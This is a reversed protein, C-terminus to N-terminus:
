LHRGRFAAVGLSSADVARVTRRWSRRLETLIPAPLSERDIAPGVLHVLFPGPQVWTPAFRVRGVSWGQTGLEFTVILVMGDQVDEISDTATMGTLSNGVGYAVWRDHVKRIPQVVHAHHGVILDVAGSGTLRRALRQQEPDPVHRFETGWHLSVVVLDAGADRAADARRIITKVRIRNAMWRHVPKIGNFGFAFALHAIVVGGVRYRVIRRSEAETRATGTHRLGAHDLADLTTRIGRAGHDLSHNSATSCGDYGAARIATALQHPAAYRPAGSISVGPGSLPTELHCIGLDASSVLPALRAFMPRYDFGGGDGAKRRAAPWTTPSGIIDGTFVVTIREAEGVTDHTAAAPLMPAWGIAGLACVLVLSVFTRHVRVPGERSRM